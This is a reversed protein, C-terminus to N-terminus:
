KFLATILHSVEKIMDESSVTDRNEFWHIVNVFVGGVIMGAVSKSSASIALGDAVSRELRAHTDQHNQYIFTEIFVSRMSSGLIKAIAQEHEILFNVVAQMYKVYYDVSICSSENTDNFKADFSFRVNKIIYTMFDIKDNFHKYFTARRIGARDCLSNITIDEIDMESLMAFFANHLANKTKIVRLDETKHM